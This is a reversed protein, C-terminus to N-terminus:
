KCSAWPQKKFAAILGEYARLPFDHEVWLERYKALGVDVHIRGLIAHINRVLEVRRITGHDLVEYDDMATIGWSAWDRYRRLEFALDEKDGTVMLHVEGPEDMFIATAHSAGKVLDLGMRALDGLSDHLYSVAFDMPGADARFSLTAWGTGSLVYAIREQPRDEELM